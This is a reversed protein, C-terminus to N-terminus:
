VRLIRLFVVLTVIAATTVALWWKSGRRAAVTPLLITALPVLWYFPGIKDLVPLLVAMSKPFLMEAWMFLLFAMGILGVISARRHTMKPTSMRIMVARPGLAVGTTM